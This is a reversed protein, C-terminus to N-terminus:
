KGDWEEFTEKGLEQDSKNKFLTSRYIKKEKSKEFDQVTKNPDASFSAMAQLWNLLEATGPPKRLIKKERIHYFFLIASTTLKNMRASNQGLRNAIIETLFEKEPFNLNYYICRRLFADPLSKESNSTILVIPSLQKNGSIENKGLKGLEPVRFSMEDIENLIDNPVDRPAKDIEDIIVVSRRKTKKGDKGKHDIHFSKPAIQQIKELENSYLIAEGLAQYSIYELPDVNNDNAHFRGLSDFTYFLDKGETTSKTEFKLPEDFGLEFAISYGLQTKGTGPEGTLLLPQNLALAVNVANILGDDPSYKSPDKFKNFEELSKGPWGKWVRNTKGKYELSKSM